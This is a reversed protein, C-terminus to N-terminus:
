NQMPVFRAIQERISKIEALLINKKEEAVKLLLTEDGKQAFYQALFYPIQYETRLDANM